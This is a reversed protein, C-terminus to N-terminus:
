NPREYKKDTHKYTIVKYFPQHYIKKVELDIYIKRKYKKYLTRFKNIRQYAFFFRHNDYM